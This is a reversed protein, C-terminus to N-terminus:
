NRGKGGHIVRHIHYPMSEICRRGFEKSLRWDGAVLRLVSFWDRAKLAGLVPGYRVDLRVQEIKKAFAASEADSLVMRDRSNELVELMLQSRHPNATMSGPTIRYLYMPEPVYVMKAGAGVLRLFFETDAGFTRTSHAVRGNEVLARPFIPKILLRREGIFRSFEVKICRGRASFGRRGRVRRWPLLGGRRDHCQMIDDFVLVDEHGDAAALLRELRHPVWADDADLVAIWRGGAVSIAHDRTRGEGWNEPNEIFRIRRDSFSRIVEVTHDTSADDCVVLELDAETQQLVSNIANGVTGAANWAPMVVSVKPSHRSM